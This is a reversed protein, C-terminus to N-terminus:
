AKATAPVPSDLPKSKAGVILFWFMVAIEGMLVPTAMRFATNYYQPFLIATLSLLIYPVGNIILWVGLIRPLFGSRFVLMGFPFLWLGWFIESVFLGQSHLNVFLMALAERQPKEFVSLFDAGRVLILAALSSVENLFAIPVQTLVLIVLLAAQQQNVGKFLRYLVLALFIFLTASFLGSVIGIRYLWEHALINAATASADGRVVLKGHVYMMGFAGAAGMLLYLVGAIRATKKTTDM